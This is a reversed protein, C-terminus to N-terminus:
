KDAKAPEGGFRIVKTYGGEEEVTIGRAAADTIVQHKRYIARGVRVGQIVDAWCGWAGVPDGGNQLDQDIGVGCGVVRAPDSVGIRLSMSASTPHQVFLGGQLYPLAWMDPTERIWLRAGVQAGFDFRSLEATDAIPQGDWSHQVSRSIPFTLAGFVQTEPFWEEGALRRRYDNHGATFGVLDFDRQSAYKDQTFRDRMHGGGVSVEWDRGEDLIRKYSPGVVYNWGKFHGAKRNVDGRWDSATLKGGFGHLGTAGDSGEFPRLCYYSFTLFDSHTTDGDNHSPEREFGVVLNPDSRACIDAQTVEEPPAPPPPPLTPEIPPQVPPEEPPPPPVKRPTPQEETLIVWNYCNRMWVLVKGSPLVFKEGYVATDPSWATRMPGLAVVKGKRCFTVQELRMDPVLQVLGSHATANIRPGQKLDANLMLYAQDDESLGLVNWAEKSIDAIDRKGCGNLPATGVVRYLIEGAANTKPLVVRPAKPMEPKAAKKSQPKKARASKETAQVGEPLKLVQGEVIHGCGKKLIDRNLECVSKWDNPFVLSLWDDKEVTYTKPETAAGAAAPQPEALVTASAAAEPASAAQAVPAAAMPVAMGSARISKMWAAGQPTFTLFSAVLALLVLVLAIAGPHLYRPRNSTARPQASEPAGTQVPDTM